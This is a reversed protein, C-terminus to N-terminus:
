ADGGVVSFTSHLLDLPLASIPQGGVGLSQVRALSQVRFPTSLYTTRGSRLVKDNIGILESGPSLNFGQLARTQLSCTSARASEDDEAATRQQRM